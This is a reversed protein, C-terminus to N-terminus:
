LCLEWQKQQDALFVVSNLSSVPYLKGFVRYAACKISENTKPTITLKLRVDKGEIPDYFTFIAESKTPETLVQKSKKM